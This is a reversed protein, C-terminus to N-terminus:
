DVSGEMQLEILRSGVRRISWFARERWLLWREVLRTVTAHRCTELTGNSPVWILSAVSRKLGSLFPVYALTVGLGM